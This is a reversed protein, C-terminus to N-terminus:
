SWATGSQVVAGRSAAAGAAYQIRTARRQSWWRHPPLNVGDGLFHKGVPLANAQKLAKSHQGASWRLISRSRLQFPM